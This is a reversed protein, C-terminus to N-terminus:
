HIEVPQRIKNNADVNVLRPEIHEAEEESVLAYSLIIVVDGMHVLHAAAGNACIEGAGLEGAIAYTELRAGNTIDVVQVKEYPLIDAADMLVPDVTISGEYDLNADTVTVRHIKGKLMERM